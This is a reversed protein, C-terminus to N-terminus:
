GSKRALFTFLGMPPRKRRKETGIGRKETGVANM